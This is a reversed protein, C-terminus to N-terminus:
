IANDKTINGQESEHGYISTFRFDAFEIQTHIDLECDGGNKYCKINPEM